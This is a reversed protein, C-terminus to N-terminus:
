RLNHVHSADPKNKDSDFSSSGIAASFLRDFCASTFRPVFSRGVELSITADIRQLPSVVRLLPFFVGRIQRGAEIGLM